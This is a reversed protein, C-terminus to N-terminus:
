LLPHSTGLLADLLPHRVSAFPNVVTLGQWIFGDQLDESIVLRCGAENAAALVVSDWISLKHTISLQAAAAIVKATTPVTEFSDQWALM